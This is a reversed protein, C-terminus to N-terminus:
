WRLGLTDSWQWWGMMSCRLTGCHDWLDSHTWYLVAAEVRMSLTWSSQTCKITLLNRSSNPTGLNGIGVVVVVDVAAAVVALM